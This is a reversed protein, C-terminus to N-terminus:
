AVRSKSLKYTIRKHKLKLAPKEILHWSSFALIITIPLSIVINTLISIEKGLLYTVTQQIPFAYIYIGYSFDGYKGFKNLKIKKNYACYFILYSGFVTFVEIFGGFKISMLLMFFSIMANWKNLVIKDRYSYILMGAAFFPFLDIFAPIYGWFIDTPFHSKLHLKSYISLIFLLLVIKRYKLLGFFGFLAVVVYSLIEFPITWLSGNISNNMSSNEFVGPLTYQMPFLFITKLYNYTSQNLLYNKVPLTTVLTGIIFTGFFVSVIFGPFIRLVRYKTFKILSLSREYSQTVLFGSVIFFTAVAIGGLTWQGHSHNSFFEGLHSTLPYAHSFIVLTAALFRIFDFNNNRDNIFNNITLEKNL